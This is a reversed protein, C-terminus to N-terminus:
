ASGRKFPRITMIRDADRNGEGILDGDRVQSRHVRIMRGNRIVKGYQRPKQKTTM